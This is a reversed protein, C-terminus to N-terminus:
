WKGGRYAGGAWYSSSASPGAPGPWASPPASGPFGGPRGPPFFGMSSGPGGPNGGGGMGGFGYGGPGPGPGGGSRAFVDVTAARVSERITRFQPVSRTAGGLSNVLEEVFEFEPYRDELSGGKDEAILNLALGAFKEAAGLEFRRVSKPVESKGEAETPLQFVMKKEGTAPDIRQTSLTDVGARVCPELGDTCIRFLKPFRMCFHLISKTHPFTHFQPRVKFFKEYEPELESVPIPADNEFNEPGDEGDSSSPQVSSPTPKAEKSGAPKLMLRDPVAGGSKKDRNRQRVTSGRRRMNRRRRHLYCLLRHLSRASHCVIEEPLELYVRRKAASQSLVPAAAGGYSSATTGYAPYNYNNASHQSILSKLQSISIDEPHYGHVPELLADSFDQSFVFLKGFHEEIKRELPGPAHLFRERPFPHGFHEFYQMPITAVPMPKQQALALFYLNLGFEAYSDPSPSLSDKSRNPLVGPPPPFVPFPNPSVGVQNQMHPHQQQHPHPEESSEPLIAIGLTEERVMGKEVAEDIAAREKKRLYVVFRDMSELPIHMRRHQVTVGNFGDKQFEHRLRNDTWWYPFYDLVSYTQKNDHSTSEKSSRDGDAGHYAAPSIFQKKLNAPSAQPDHDGERKNGGRLPVHSTSSVAGGGGYGPQQMPFTSASAGVLPPPHPPAGAGPPMGHYAGPPPPAGGSPAPAQQRLMANTPTPPQMMMSAPKGGLPMMNPNSGGAAGFKGGAPAGFPPPNYQHYGVAAGGAKMGVAGGGKYMPPPPPWAAGRGQGFPPSKAALNHEM